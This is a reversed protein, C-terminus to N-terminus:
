FKVQLGIGTLSKVQLAPKNGTAGFLRVDDDYILDVNISANIINSIKFALINTMFLDIKEPNRRYNSFLDLRGRYQVVTSLDKLYQASAFAGIETVSSRGPAVGYLGKASLTDDKVIIWRATIPSLFLSFGARPKYDFGISALLYAPSLFASTFTKVNAPYTFGNAIQTRFNALGSLYWRGSDLQYGYKSLLDLRDDNKRAGLSTTNVYGFNFDATNDWSHRGKKEFRYLSLYSTLTLSFNDGGAAWNSLSGQALNLNFLGGKRLYNTATDDAGTKITRSSEKKLQTVQEDQANLYLSFFALLISLFIKMVLFNNFSIIGALVNKLPPKLQRNQLPEFINNQWLAAPYYRLAKKSCP